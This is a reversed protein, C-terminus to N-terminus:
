GPCRVVGLTVSSCSDRPPTTTTTTPAPQREPPASKTGGGTASGSGQPRAELGPQPAASRAPRLDLQGDLQDYQIPVRNPFDREISNRAWGFADEVSADAAGEILGRRIMYEVLYSRGFAENEYALENAPSAATLIRGPALAETFGGAYCGAMVIWAKQAQLRRLRAGLDLDTVLNGDSGVMAERGSSIKRVHGAYFFVATADPGARATLWDISARIAGASAARDRLAIVHDDAVGLRRLAETMDNSDTVASRLDHRTGPYDNIGIVVAWTGGSPVVGTRPSVLAAPLPSPPPPPADFSEPAAQIAIDGALARLATSTPSLDGLVAFGAGTSAAPSGALERRPPPGPAVVVQQLVLAAAVAGVLVSLARRARHRSLQM